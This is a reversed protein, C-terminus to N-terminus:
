FVFKGAFQVLRPNNMDGKIVGFGGAGPGGPSFTNGPPNFQVRNFLNFVEVRFEFGLKEGPGFNTHKFAAFDWNAIGDATLTSDVRAENGFTYAAPTTFCAQNIWGNGGSLGNLM